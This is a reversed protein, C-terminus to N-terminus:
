YKRGTINIFAKHNLIEPETMVNNLSIMNVAENTTLKIDKKINSVKRSYFQRDTFVGSTFQSKFTSEQELVALLTDIDEQTPCPVKIWNSRDKWRETVSLNSDALGRFKRSGSTKANKILTKHELASYTTIMGQKYSKTIGNIELTIDEHLFLEGHAAPIIFVKGDRLYDPRFVWIHLLLLLKIHNGDPDGDVSIGIDKYGANLVYVRNDVTIPNILNDEDMINPPKGKLQAISIPVPGDSQIDAVESGASDGEVYIITTEEVPFPSNSIHISSESKRLARKLEDNALDAVEQNLEAKRKERERMKARKEEEKKKIEEFRAELELAHLGENFCKNMFPALEPGTFAKFLEDNLIPAYKTNVHIQKTQGSYTASPQDLLILVGLRNRYVKKDFKINDTFKTMNEQFIDEMIGLFSERVCGEAKSDRMPMRNVIIKSAFEVRSDNYSLFVRARFAEDIINNSVEFEVVNEDRLLSEPTISTPTIVEVETNLFKFHIEIDNTNKMLIFKLRETIRDRVYPIQQSYGNMSVEFLTDDFKYHIKTGSDYLDLEPIYKLDGTRKLEGDREGKLYQLFYEGQASLSKVYLRFYETCSKSVAMGAGHTGSTIIGKYGETNRSKGGASDEECALYIAPENYEPHIECPIGRGQDEILVSFDELISIGIYFKKEIGRSKLRESYAVTEDISNDIIEFLQNEIGIMDHAGLFRSVARRHKEAGNERRISDARYSTELTDPKNGDIFNNDSM